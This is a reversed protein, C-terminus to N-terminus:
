HEHSQQLYEILDNLDTDAMSWRPMTSDLTEGSPDIGTTIVLRLSKINYSDHDGHNESEGDHNDDGFLAELTLPPAKIWFRPMMRQGERDAGHCSSCGGGHMRMHMEGMGSNSQRATIPNGSESSGTFYIREGNSIFKAPGYNSSGTAHDVNGNCASLFLFLFPLYRKIKL